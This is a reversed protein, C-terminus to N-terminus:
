CKLENEENEVFLNKQEKYCSFYGYVHKKQIKKTEKHYQISDYKTILQM